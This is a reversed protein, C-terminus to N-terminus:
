KEQVFELFEIPAIPMAIGNNKILFNLISLDSKTKELSIGFLSSFLLSLDFLKDEPYQIIRVIDDPPYGAKEKAIEIAKALGGLVDVLGNEKASIGTWVRGQAIEHVEDFNMKRGTSVKNVFDSYFDKIYNEIQSREEENMPRDPLGIPILPLTFPYGLDAYKGRQVIETNIGLSDAIGKNYIWGGIVGISGTITMPSSVITDADMSLWYGGSAAVAGQSVIIPKKGKYKRIVEAVLDSALGDGGPSDVRLVIAGVNSEALKKLYASLERARIGSELDCPGLAYVVAISKTPKGWQDDEPEVPSSSISIKSLTIDKNINKIVAEVDNWRAITDILKNELSVKATLIINSNVIKDFKDFSIKRAECIEKGVFEYLDDVIKQNQERDAPSMRDSEFSEFASKYKYFRLDQFGIGVKELMTKYYSRGIAYGTLSITGMPDLILKDAISVFHYQSINLRDAFIIVQKGGNKFEKLKERIEWLIEMNAYLGTINLVIGKVQKERRAKEIVELIDLLKNSNDFWLYGLYQINGKLDLQLYRNEPVIKNIFTRDLAGARVYYSNYINKQKDNFHHQSAFGFHGFSLDVAINFTKDKFYRGNLRLGDIIEWSLGASWNVNKLNQNDFMSADAYFAMPYSGIPRVAIEAVSEGNGGEFAFTRQLGISLQPIPRLLGGIFTIGGRQFHDKDGFTYGIGYGFNIIRNGFGWSYRLNYVSKNSDSESLIGFGSSPLSLSLIETQPNGLFLGWRSGQMIEKNRESYVFLFDSSNLYTTASPNIFGYLGYKFAGPSAQLFDTLEYYSLFKPSQCFISSQFTFILLIFVILKKIM